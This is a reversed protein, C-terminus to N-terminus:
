KTRNYDKNYSSFLRENNKFQFHGYLLGFALTFVLKTILKGIQIDNVDFGQDIIYLIVATPLGWYISGHVFM